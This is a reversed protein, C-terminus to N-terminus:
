LKVKMLEIDWKKIEKEGQILVAYPILEKTHFEGVMYKGEDMWHCRIGVIKKMEKKEEFSVKVSKFIIRDVIMKTNLSDRHVVELGEKIWYRIEKSKEM